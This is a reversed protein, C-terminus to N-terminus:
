RPRRTPLPVSLKLDVSGDAQPDTGIQVPFDALHAAVFADVGSALTFFITYTIWDQMHRERSRVLANRAIVAPVSDVRLEIDTTDAGPLASISDRALGRQAQHKDRADNLRSRTRVLMYYSSGQATLFFAGRKYAGVSFQGWGPVLMSRMLAKGPPFRRQATDRVALTDQASASRASVLLLFVILLRKM